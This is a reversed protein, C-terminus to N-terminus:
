GAILNALSARVDARDVPGLAREAIKGKPDIYYIAPEQDLRWSQAAPSLIQQQITAAKDDRYVELHIFNAKAGFAAAQSQVIDVEPGCLQSQCFAPTAIILVIM